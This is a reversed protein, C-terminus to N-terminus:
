QLTEYPQKPDVDSLAADEVSFATTTDAEAPPSELLFDLVQDIVNPIFAAHLSAFVEEVLSQRFSALGSFIFEHFLQKKKVDVPKANNNTHNKRQHDRAAKPM